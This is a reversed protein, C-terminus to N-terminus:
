LLSIDIEQQKSLSDISYNGVVRHQESLIIVRDMISRIQQFNHTAIIVGKGERHLSDMLQLLQQQYHKSLGSFPEDFIIVQPNMTLISGLAVIKQEGGSLQYPVRDKLSDISLMHLVDDVRKNIINESLGQQRPGFALEDAVSDTFLQVSSNQFVYGVKQRFVDFNLQKGDDYLNGNVPKILGMMLKFLTSKGSGNPGMIATCENFNIKLNIQKLVEENTYRYDVDEFEFM